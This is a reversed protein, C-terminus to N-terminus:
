IFHVCFFYQSAEAPTPPNWLKGVNLKIEELAEVIAEHGDVLGDLSRIREVWRTLSPDALKSRKLGYETVKKNLFGARKTSRNFFSALSRASDLANSVCNIGCSKAVCLNLRHSACHVYDANPNVRSINGAVGKKLSAMASAGDYEQGRCNQIPLGIDKLTTLIENALVDGSTGHICHIFRLFHGTIDDKDIYRIVIAM